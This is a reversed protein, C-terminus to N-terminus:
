QVYQAKTVLVGNVFSLIQDEDLAVDLYVVEGTFGAPTFYATDNWRYGTGAKQKGTDTEIGLEGSRLTYNRATWQAATMSRVVSDAQSVNHLYM